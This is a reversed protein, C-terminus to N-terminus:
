QHPDYQTLQQPQNDQNEEGLHSKAAEGYKLLAGVSEFNLRKMDLFLDFTPLRLDRNPDDNEDL